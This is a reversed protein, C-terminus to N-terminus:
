IYYMCIYIQIYTYTTYACAHTYKARRISRYRWDVMSQRTVLYYSGTGGSATEEEIGHEVPAVGRGDEGIGTTGCVTHAIRGQGGDGGGVGGRKGDFRIAFEPEALFALGALGIACVVARSTLAANELHVVVAGPQGGADPKSVM